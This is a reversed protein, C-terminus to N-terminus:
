KLSDKKKIKLKVIYISTIFRTQMFRSFVPTILTWVDKDHAETKSSTSPRSNVTIELDTKNLKSVSSEFIDQIDISLYELNLGIFTLALNNKETMIKSFDCENLELKKLTLYFCSAISQVLDDSYTFYSEFRICKIPLKKHSKYSNFTNTLQQTDRSLSGSLTLQNFNDVNETLYELLEQNVFVTDIALTMLRSKISFLKSRDRPYMHLRASLSLFNSGFLQLTELQPCASLVNHLVIDNDFQLSLSRLVTFHSLYLGLDMNGLVDRFTNSSVNLSLQTIKQSYHNIAVFERDRIVRNVVSFPVYITTLSQMNLEQRAQYMHELFQNSDHMLHLTQLNTCANLIRVLIDRRVIYRDSAKEATLSLCRIDGGNMHKPEFFLQRYLMVVDESGQLQIYGNLGPLNVTYWAKCVILCQQKLHRPLLGFIKDLIEIPLESIHMAM